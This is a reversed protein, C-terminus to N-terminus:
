GGLKLGCRCPTGFEHVINWGIEGELHSRPPWPLAEWDGPSLAASSTEVIFVESSKGCFNLDPTTFTSYSVQSARALFWYCWARCLVEISKVHSQCHTWHCYRQLINSLADKWIKGQLSCTEVFKKQKIHSIGPNHFSQALFQFQM